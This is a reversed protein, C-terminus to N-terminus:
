VVSKRDAVNLTLLLGGGAALGTTLFTRRSVQAAGVSGADAPADAGRDFANLTGM